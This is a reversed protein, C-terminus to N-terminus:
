FSLLRALIGGPPMAPGPVGGMGPPGPPGGMDPPGGMGPPGGMPPSGPVGGPADMIGSTIESVIAMAEERSFGFTSNLIEVLEQHDPPLVQSPSPPAQGQLETLLTRIGQPGQTRDRLAGVLAERPLQGTTYQQFLTVLDGSNPVPMPGDAGPGPGMKPMPVGGSVPPPGPPLPVGDTSARNVM